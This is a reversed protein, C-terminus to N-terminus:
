EQRCLRFHKVTTAIQWWHHFAVLPAVVGCSHQLIECMQLADLGLSHLGVCVETARVRVFELRVAAIRRRAATLEDDTLELQGDAILSPSAGDNDRAYFDGGAAVIAHVTDAAMYQALPRVAAHLATHGRRDRWRVDAGAALLLEACQHNSRICAVFLPTRRDIDVIDIDAGADILWRLADCGEAQPEPSDCIIHLCTRGMFDRANLDVGGDRAILRLCDVDSVRNRQDVASHLLTGGVANRLASLDIKPNAVLLRLMSASFPAMRCLLPACEADVPAGAGILSLAIRDDAHLCAFFLPSRFQCDRLALDAGRSVLLDVMEAHASRTAHHLATEGVEDTDDVLAGADLLVRVIELAGAAAAVILANCRRLHATELPANVDIQGGDILSAVLKADGSLISALFQAVLEGHDVSTM